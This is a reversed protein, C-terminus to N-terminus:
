HYSWSTAPLLLWFSSLSCHLQNWSKSFQQGLSCLVWISISDAYYRSLKYMYVLPSFDKCIVPSYPTFLLIYPPHLWVHHQLSPSLRDYSQQHHLPHYPRKRFFYSLFFMSFLSLIHGYPVYVHWPGCPDMFIRIVRTHRFIAKFWSSKM